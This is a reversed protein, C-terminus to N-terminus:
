GCFGLKAFIVLWLGWIGLFKEGGFVLVLFIQRIYLSPNAMLSLRRFAWMGGEGHGTAQRM